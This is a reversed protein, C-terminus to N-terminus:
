SISIDCIFIHLVVSFDVNIRASSCFLFLLLLLVILLLGVHQHTHGVLGDHHQHVPHVTCGDGGEPMSLQQRHPVSNALCLQNSLVFWDPM